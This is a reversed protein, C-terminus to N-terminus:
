DTVPGPASLSRTHGRRRREMRKRCAPTAQVAKGETVRGCGCVCDRPTVPGRSGVAEALAKAMPIPVGNGILRSRAAPTFSALTLSEAGQARKRRAPRDHKSRPRTTVTGTVRRRVPTRIPRIISGDRSGFQIHRLRRQPVGFDQSDVDLRQVRYGPVVVDPVNRVNEMLFWAPEGEQVLRLFEQVLRDGEAEDRYRNADSYNKCPPGGIIGDFRGRPIHFDEVLEDLILDPGRVVSFGAAHFGRGLLDAGPFLSLVLEGHCAAAVPLGLVEADQAIIKAHQRDMEELHVNSVARSAFDWFSAFDGDALASFRGSSPILAIAAELLSSEQSRGMSHGGLDFLHWLHRLCERAIELEQVTPPRRLDSM